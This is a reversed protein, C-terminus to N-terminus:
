QTSCSYNAADNVDGSGNYRAYAPHKCLPRSM